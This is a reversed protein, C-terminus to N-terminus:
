NNRQGGRQPRNKQFEEYKKAQETTLFSKIKISSGERLANSKEFNAERSGNSSQLLQKQEKTTLLTYKYISDQQNKNLSLQETLREVQIKAIEEDSRNQRNGREQAQSLGITLLGAILIGISKKM